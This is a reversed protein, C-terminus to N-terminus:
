INHYLRIILSKAIKQIANEDILGTDFYLDLAKNEIIFYYHVQEIETSSKEAAPPTLIFNVKYSETTLDKIKESSIVESHNLYLQEIPQSSDYTIIDLGGIQINNKYIQMSSDELFKTELETPISIEYTDTKISQYNQTNEKESDASDGIIAGGDNRGSCAVMVILILGLCFALTIRKV